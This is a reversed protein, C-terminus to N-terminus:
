QMAGYLDWMPLFVGLALVLVMFGIAIILLPEIRASLTKLDYDVEREYFEAVEDLMEDVRGTEEGVGLMQIVLPTFVGTAAATRTLNEGREVGNRMNRIREGIFSNDVARAVLTLGQILPVGARFAMSFARAFRALTARLLIDGMIPIKLRFRDWRYRGPETRIYARLGIVGAFLGVLLYPWWAVMFDSVGLIIRTPLPLQTDFREFIRAFEPIVWVTLIGIAIGIATIVFTPYRFAEKIRNRTDKEQSLYHFLRLFSEELDGANEGVRIMNVFLPSFTQPHRALSGGLDRGSELSEVVDEIVESLIENRTSEQLSQLGRVLPVGSRTLSYMQRSFLILDDLTPRGGGLQRKIERWRDRQERAENIEIPTVGTNFLQNAVADSTDAELQGQVLEGRGTRGKYTFQAM